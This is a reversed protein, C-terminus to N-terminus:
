WGWEAGIILERLMNFRPEGVRARRIKLGHERRVVRVRRATRGKVGPIGVRESRLVLTDRRKLSVPEEVCGTAHEQVLVGGCLRRVVETLTWRVDSM